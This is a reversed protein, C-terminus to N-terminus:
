LVTFHQSPQINQGLMVRTRMAHARITFTWDAGDCSVHTHKRKHKGAAAESTMLVTIFMGTQRRRGGPELWFKHKPLVATILPSCDSRAGHQVNGASQHGLKSHTRDTCVICVWVDSYTWIQTCSLRHCSALTHQASDYVCSMTSSLQQYSFVCVIM